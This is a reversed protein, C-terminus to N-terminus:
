KKKRVGYYAVLKDICKYENLLRFVYEALCKSSRDHSVDVFELFREKVGENTVYRVITSLQSKSMIDTTKNVVISVFHTHKIEKKITKLLVNSISQILDNQIDGSLGSFVTSKSLYGSVKPDLTGMLNILEVYNAMNISTVQQEDHERFSLELKALFCTADILRSLVYRNNKVSENHKEISQNYADSLCTEVRINGFKKLTILSEIHSRNIEHRHKLHHHNNLDSCGYKSWTNTEHSFLICPWCCLKQTKSM